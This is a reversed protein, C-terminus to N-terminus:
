ATKPTATLASIVKDMKEDLSKAISTLKPRDLAALFSSPLDYHQRQYANGFL